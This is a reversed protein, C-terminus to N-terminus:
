QGRYAADWKALLGKLGAHTMIFAVETKAGDSSAALAVAQPDLGYDEGLFELQTRFVQGSASLPQHQNQRLKALVKAVKKYHSRLQTIESALLGIFPILDKKFAIPLQQGHSTPVTIPQDAKTGQNATSPKLGLSKEM